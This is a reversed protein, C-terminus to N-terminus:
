KGNQSVTFLQFHQIINSKLKRKHELHAQDVDEQAAEDGEGHVAEDDDGRVPEDEGDVGEGDAVGVVDGM